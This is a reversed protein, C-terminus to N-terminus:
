DDKPIGLAERIRREVEPDMEPPTAPVDRGLEAVVTELCELRGNLKYEGSIPHWPAHKTHTKEFMEAIADEYDPRKDRNRVDELTLKWRKHPKKLREAFRKLQEEPSIHIFMKVLRVGDDTLMEEFDNIEDYARKWESKKAFGEVREVLVRGYWSRDFIAMEGKRPLKTWFRYLYHRGQDEPNPASISWAYCHRPDLRENIRRIAGGKGAADWGEFMLIARRNEAVYRQQLVLLKLQLSALRREYTEVTDVQKSLDVADLAPVKATKGSKKKATM